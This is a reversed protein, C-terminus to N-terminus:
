STPTVTITKVLKNLMLEYLTGFVPPPTDMGSPNEPKPIHFFIDGEASCNWVPLDFLYGTDICDLNTWQIEIKCGADSDCGKLKDWHSEKLEPKMWKDREDLLDQMDTTM